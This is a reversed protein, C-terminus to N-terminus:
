NRFEPSRRAVELRKVARLLAQKHKPRFPETRCAAAAIDLSALVVDTVLAAPTDMDLASYNEDFLTGVAYRIDVERELADPWGASFLANRTPGELAESVFRAAQRTLAKGDGRGLLMLVVTHVMQMLAIRLDSPLESM